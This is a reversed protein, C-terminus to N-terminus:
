FATIKLAKAMEKASSYKIVRENFADEYSEVLEKNPKRDDDFSIFNENNFNTKLFQLLSKGKVTKENITVISLSM